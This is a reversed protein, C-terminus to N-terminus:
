QMLWPLSICRQLLDLVAMTCLHSLQAMGVKSDCTGFKWIVYNILHVVDYWSKFMGAKILTQVQDKFCSMIITTHQLQCIQVEM